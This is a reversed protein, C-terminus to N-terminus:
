ISPGGPQRYFQLIEDGFFTEYGDFEAEALIRAAQLTSSRYPIHIEEGTELVRGEGNIFYGEFLTPTFAIRQQNLLSALQELDETAKSLDYIRQPPAVEMTTAPFDGKIFLHLGGAAKVFAPGYEIAHIMADLLTENQGLSKLTDFKAYWRTMTETAQREFRLSIVGPEASYMTLTPDM